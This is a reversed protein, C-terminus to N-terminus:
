GVYPYYGPLGAAASGVMEGGGGVYLGTSPYLALKKDSAPPNCSLHYDGINTGGDVNGDTATPAWYGESVLAQAEGVPWVGPADTFTSYCLFVHNDSFPCPGLAISHVFYNPITTDIGYNGIADSTELADYFQRLADRNVNAPDVEGATFAGGYQTVVKDAVHQSAADWTSFPLRGDMCYSTGIPPAASAPAAALGAVASAALVLALAVALRVRNATFANSM